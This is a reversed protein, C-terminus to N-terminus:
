QSSSVSMETVSTANAAPYPLARCNLRSNLRTKRSVGLRNRAPGPEAPRCSASPPSVSRSHNVPASSQSARVANRDARATGPTSCTAPGAYRRVTM